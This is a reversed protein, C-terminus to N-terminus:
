LRICIKHAPPTTQSPVRPLAINIYYVIYSIGMNLKSNRSLLLYFGIIRFFSCCKARKKCSSLVEPINIKLTFKNIYMKMICNQLAGKLINIPLITANYKNSTQISPM